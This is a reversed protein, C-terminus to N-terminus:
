EIYGLARLQEDVQRQEEASREQPLAIPPAQAIHRELEVKLRALVEPERASLDEAELPDEELDFLEYRLGKSGPIRILKWSGARVSQWRDGLPPIAQLEADLRAALEPFRGSLDVRLEADDEIRFLRSSGKARILLWPGSRLYRFPEDGSRRGGLERIPNQPLMASGSEAFLVRNSISADDAGGTMLRTLDRGEFANGEPAQIGLLSLATPLLDMLSVPADVVRGAPLVGPMAFILPVRLTAEYVLSGHEYYYGHEGLSEGHDSTFIVLTHAAPERWRLAELLRGVMADVYRIEADYLSTLRTRWRESEGSLNFFVTASSPKWGASREYFEYAKADEGMLYDAPPSYMWHPDKYHAWLFFPGEEAETLLEVAVRTVREAAGTSPPGGGTPAFRSRLESASVFREFGQDLGQERDAVSNGTVAFTRYGASRLIEALTLESEHLREGVERVGHSRPARSTFLSAFAQTTRPIPTSAASFRVGSEALEDAAPTKAAAHGYAGLRDARLTDVSILV